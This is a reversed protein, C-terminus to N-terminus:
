LPRRLYREERFQKPSTGMVLKFSRSFSYQDTYGMDQAIQKISLKSEKLLQSAKQIKLSNYLQIPSYKTKEKFLASLYSASLQTERALDALTLQGHLHQKMINISREIINDAGKKMYNFVTLRFTGLFSYFRFNAYLLNEINNMLDLHHHIDDFQAIRGVLPPVTRPAGKKGPALYAFIEDALLGNFQITYLRWPHKTDSGASFPTKKPILVFQNAKIPIRHGADYWGKGHACYLLSYHPSGKPRSWSRPSNEPSFGMETIYLNRALPHKELKKQLQPPLIWNTQQIVPTNTMM